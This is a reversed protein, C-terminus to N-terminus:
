KGPSNSVGYAFSHPIVLKNTLSELRSPYTKKKKLILKYIVYWLVIEKTVDDKRTGRLSLTKISNINVKEQPFYNM